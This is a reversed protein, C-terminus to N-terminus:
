NGAADLYEANVADSIESYGTDIQCTHDAQALTIEEAQLAELAPRDFELPADSATPVDTVIVDLRAEIDTEVAKPAEYTYGSDAMCSSWTIAADIVRQDQNAKEGAADEPNLQGQQVNDEPFVTDLAQRSCGGAFSLDERDLAIAQTGGLDGGTLATDYASRDATSLADRISANTDGISMGGQAAEVEWLTSIGYGFTSRFTDKDSFGAPQSNSDMATRLAEPSVPIYEFGEAAMCDRVLDEVTTQRRAIEAESFGFEGNGTVAPDSAALPAGSSTGDPATTNSNTTTTTAGSGCAAATLALGLGVAALSKSSRFISM